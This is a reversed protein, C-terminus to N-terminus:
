GVGQSRGRQVSYAICGIGHWSSETRLVRWLVRTTAAAFLPSHEERAELAVTGIVGMCTEAPKTFVGHASLAKDPDHKQILVNNTDKWKKHDIARDRLLQVRFLSCPTKYGQLVLLVEGM